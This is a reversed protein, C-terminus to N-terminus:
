ARRSARSERAELNWGVVLGLPTDPCKRWRTQPRILGLRDEGDPGSLVTHAIRRNARQQRAKARPISRRSSKDNEGYTNRCDKAYSLRKKDQPTKRV